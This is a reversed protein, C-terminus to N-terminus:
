DAEQMQMQHHGNGDNKSDSVGPGKPTKTEKQPEQDALDLVSTKRNKNNIAM